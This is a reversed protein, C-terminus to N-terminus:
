HWTRQNIISSSNVFLYVLAFSQCALQLLLFIPFLRLSRAIQVGEVLRLEWRGQSLSPGLSKRSIELIKQAVSGQHSSTTTLGQLHPCCPYTGDSYLLSKGYGDSLCVWFQMRLIGLVQIQLSQPFEKGEKIYEV